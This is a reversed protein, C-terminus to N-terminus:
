GIAEDGEPKEEPAVPDVARQDADEARMSRGMPGRPHDHGHRGRELQQSIFEGIPEAVIEEVLDGRHPLEVLHVMGRLHQGGEGFQALMRDLDDDHDIQDTEARAGCEADHGIDEARADLGERQEVAVDDRHRKEQGITVQPVGVHPDREGSDGAPDQLTGGMVLKMVGDVGSMEVLVEAKRKGNPVPREARECNGALRAFRDNEADAVVPRREARREGGEGRGARAQRAM